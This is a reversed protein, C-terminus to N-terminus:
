IELYVNEEIYIIYIIINPKNIQTYIHTSTLTSVSIQFIMNISKSSLYQNTNQISM